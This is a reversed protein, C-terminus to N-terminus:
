IIYYVIIISYLLINRVWLPLVTVDETEGNYEKTAIEGDKHMWQVKKANRWWNPYVSVRELFINVEFKFWFEGTQRRKQALLTKKLM